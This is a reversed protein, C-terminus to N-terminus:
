SFEDFTRGEETGGIAHRLVSRLAVTYGQVYALAAEATTVWGHFTHSTTYGGTPNGDEDVSVWVGLTGDPRLERVGYLDDTGLGTSGREAIAPVLQVMRGNINM